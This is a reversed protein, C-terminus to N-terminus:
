RKPQDGPQDLGALARLKEVARVVALGEAASSKPPPGGAIHDLFSQLERGLPEAPDIAVHEIVPEIDSGRAIEITPAGLRPLVAVGESGHVRVERRKDVFRNSAEVVLWPEDGGGLHAWVSSAMGDNSEIVAARPSPIAALIEIAITLDHPLLNWIADVDTRPSTWNTRTSRVGSVEGIAGSRAIAGLQEIGPHYRWIHMLHIRDGHSRVLEAASAADTTFPKECFVPVDFRDLVEHLVTAHTSAPTAVVVGDVDGLDAISATEGAIAPDVVVVRAGLEVLRDHILRGWIGMGILGITFV